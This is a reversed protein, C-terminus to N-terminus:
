EWGLALGLTTKGKTVIAVVFLLVMMYEGPFEM